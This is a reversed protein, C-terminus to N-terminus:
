YGPGNRGEYLMLLTRTFALHFKAHKSVAASHDSDTRCKSLAPPNQPSGFFFSSPHIGTPTGLPLPNPKSRPAVLQVQTEALRRSPRSCGVPSNVWIKQFRRILAPYNRMPRHTRACASVTKRDYGNTGSRYQRGPDENFSQHAPQGVASHCRGYKRRWM